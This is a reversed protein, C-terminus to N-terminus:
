NKKLILYYVPTNERKNDKILKTYNFFNLNNKLEEFYKINNINEFEEQYAFFLYDFDSYLDELEQRDILQMESVSYSAILIKKFNKNKKFEDSNIKEMFNINKFQEPFLTNKLYYKQISGMTKLDVINYIGKFGATNVIRSFNGYGGGVEYIIEVDKFLNISLYENILDIYKYHLITSTSAGPYFNYNYSGGFIPDRIRFLINKLFFKSNLLDNFYQYALKEDSGHVDDFKQNQLFEIKNNKITEVMNNAMIDWNNIPNNNTLLSDFGSITNLKKNLNIKKKIKNNLIIKKYYKKPNIILEYLNRIIKVIINM